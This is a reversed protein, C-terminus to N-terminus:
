GQRQVNNCELTPSSFLFMVCLFGDPLLHLTAWIILIFPKTIFFSTFSSVCVFFVACKQLVRLKLCLWLQFAVCCNPLSAFLHLFPTTDHPTWYQWSMNCPSHIVHHFCTDCGQCEGSRRSANNALLNLIMITLWRVGIFFWYKYHFLIQCPGLGSSITFCQSSIPHFANRHYITKSWHTMTDTEGYCLSVKTETKNFRYPQRSLRSINSQIFPLLAFLHSIPYWQGIIYLKWLTSINMGNCIQKVHVHLSFLNCWGFISHM